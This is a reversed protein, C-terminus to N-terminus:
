PSAKNQLLPDLSVSGQNASSGLVLIICGAILLSISMALFSASSGGSSSQLLGVIYSGAFGGLAGFSNVLAMAEGAVNSPLMEPIIAYFPGYPAYMCGGAIVV